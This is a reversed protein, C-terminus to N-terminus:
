EGNGEFDAEFDERGDGVTCMGDSNRGSTVDVTGQSTEDVAVQLELVLDCLPAFAVSTGRDM